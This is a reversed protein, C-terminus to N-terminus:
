CSRRHRAHAGVVAGPATVTRAFYGAAAVVANVAIASPCRRADGLGRGGAILDESVLSACWLVAAATATVSINDDLRIPITEVAAAALAAVFPMALSFWPYPPPIIM